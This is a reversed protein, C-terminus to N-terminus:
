KAATLETWLSDAEDRPVQFGLRSNLKRLDPKGHSTFDNEDGGDLMQNLADIIAQKRDFAPESVPEEVAIGGPIAGRAIAERSFIAAIDTGNPEIMCTHGSTLSIHLPDATPSRFIM